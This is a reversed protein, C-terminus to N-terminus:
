LDNCHTLHVLLAVAEQQFRRRSCSCEICDAVLLYELNFLHQEYCVLMHQDLKFEALDNDEVHIAFDHRLDFFDLFDEVFPRVNYCLGVYFSSHREDGKFDLCNALTVHYRELEQLSTPCLDHTYELVVGKHHVLVQM